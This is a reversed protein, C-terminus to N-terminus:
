YDLIGLPLAMSRIQGNLMPQFLGNSDLLEVLVINLNQTISGQNQSSDTLHTSLQCM